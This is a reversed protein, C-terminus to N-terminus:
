KLTSGRRLATKGYRERVNDVAEDLRPDDSEFLMAQTSFGSASVGLLRIPGDRPEADWLQLVETLLTGTVCTPAILTRRRTITKFRHDRVKLTVIRAKLGHGRVRQAVADILAVLTGHLTEEDDVDEMFTTEHGISKADSYPTVARSDKGAALDFFRDAYSGFWERLRPAGAKRLDAFTHIGQRGLREAAKPGVGWMRRVPLPALFGEIDESPVVVLGDPKDLDSALKALFKNPAVGVSATLDLENRIDARLQEAAHEATGFLRECGGLDLFAEDVSLPEVLPSYRQFIEFVQRSVDQYLRMRVPVFRGHPCLKAATRVPMASHVGFERAEYSAASVVGRADKPGGVIVPKGRLEPQERQEVSAYFADMDVHLIM